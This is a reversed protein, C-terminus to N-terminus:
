TAVVTSAFVSSRVCAGGDWDLVLTYSSADETTLTLSIALAGDSATVFDYDLGITNTSAVVGAAATSTWTIGSAGSAQVAFRDIATAAVAGGADGTGSLYVRVHQRRTWANGGVDYLQIRAYREANSTLDSVVLTALGPIYASIASDLKTSTVVSAGLQTSSLSSDETYLPGLNWWDGSRATM